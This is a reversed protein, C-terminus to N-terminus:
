FAISTTATLTHNLKNKNIHNLDKIFTNKIGFIINKNVKNLYNLGFDIQRGSPELNIKKLNYNINGNRDALEQIKFNMSGNEIRNPQSISFSLSDNTNFINTKNVSIDFSSSSIPTFSHILSSYPNNIITRAVTTNFKFSFNENIGHEINLGSFYSNPNAGNIGVAGTYKSGLLTEKEKMVGSIIALHDFTSKNKIFAATITKTDETVEGFLGSNFGSDHVGIMLINNGYNYQSSLGLGGNNNNIFPNKSNTSQSINNSILKNFYQIPISQTDIGISTKFNNNNELSGLINIYNENIKKASTNQFKLNRIDNGVILKLDYEDNTDRILQALDFRFGGGLADYFYGYENKLGNILSDGFSSDLYMETFSAPFIGPSNEPTNVMSGGTSIGVLPNLSTTIPSLAAYADPIGHGWTDHYGHKISNGHTTFTTNGSPTFWSNNASALLRDVIMEPTHNPFAQNMLAIIGSVMPSASSSGGGTINGYHSTGSGEDHWSAGFIQFADTVLCYEKASQCPNSLQFFDSGAITPSNRVEMYAVALYAGRLEPFWKPLAALAGIESKTQDNGTAFVIIGGNTQFADMANVYATMHATSTSNVTGSCGLYGGVAEFNTASPNNAIFTDVDSALDQTGGCTRGWSNNSVIANLARASDLDAAKGTFNTLPVSSLVLDAEYAVGMIDNASSSGSFGGAAYAAVLNCHMDNTNDAQFNGGTLDTTTKGGQTFEQHRPDCNFDAVHIVEGKGSLHQTGDWYAHAKHINMLSYPHITSVASSHEVNVYESLAARAASNGRDTFATGLRLAYEKLSVSVSQTGNETGNTVSSIEITITETGEYVSDAVPTISVTTSSSGVPVTVSTPGTFDSNFTATGTSQFNVTVPNTSTASLSVDVSFGSSDSDYISTTGTSISVSPGSGGGGSGGGSGGAAVAGFGLVSAITAGSLGIVPVAEAATLSPSEVPLYKSKELPISVSIPALGYFQNIHNASIRKLKTDLGPSLVNNTILYFKSEKYIDFSIETFLNNLKNYSNLFKEENFTSFKIENRIINLQKENARVFDLNASNVESLDNKKIINSQITEKFSEFKFFDISAVSAFSNSTTGILFIILFFRSVIKILAM